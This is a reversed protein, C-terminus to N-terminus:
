SKRVDPQANSHLSSLFLVSLQVRHFFLPAQLHNLLSILIKQLFVHSRHLLYREKDFKILLDHRASLYMFDVTCVSAQYTADTILKRIIYFFLTLSTVKIDKENVRFVHLANVWKMGTNSKMYFGTM